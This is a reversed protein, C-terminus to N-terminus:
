TCAFSGSSSTMLCRVMRLVNGATAATMSSTWRSTPPRTGSATRKVLAAHAQVLLEVQKHPNFGGVYVFWEEDATLGQRAAAASVEASTGPQYVPSPAEGAVRIRSRDVRLVNAIEGASFESVTLVLNAQRLALGVKLRWFLRARFSPLTM